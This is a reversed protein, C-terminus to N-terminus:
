ADTRQLFHSFNNDATVYDETDDTLGLVTVELM